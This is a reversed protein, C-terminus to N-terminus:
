IFIIQDGETMDIDSATVIGQVGDLFDERKPGFMDVTMKCAFLKANGSSLMQLYERVPPVDLGKMKNKLLGTTVATMGPLVGTIQPIGLNGTPLGMMSMKM